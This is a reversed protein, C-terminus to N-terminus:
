EELKQKLKKKGKEDLLNIGGLILERFFRFDKKNIILKLGNGNNDYPMEIIIDGEKNKNLEFWMGVECEINM